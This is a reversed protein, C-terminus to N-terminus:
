ISFILWKFAHLNLVFSELYNGELMSVLKVNKEETNDGKYSAAFSWESASEHKQIM